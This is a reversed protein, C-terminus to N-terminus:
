KNTELTLGSKKSRWMEVWSRIMLGQLTLAAGVDEEELYLRKLEEYDVAELKSISKGLQYGLLGYVELIDPITNINEQNLIDIVQNIVSPFNPM